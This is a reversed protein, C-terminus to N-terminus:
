YPDIFRKHFAIVVLWVYCYRSGTIKLRNEACQGRGSFKNYLLSGRTHMTYRM